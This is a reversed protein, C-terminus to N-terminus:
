HTQTDVFYHARFIHLASLCKSRTSKIQHNESVLNLQNRACIQMSVGIYVVCVTCNAAVLFDFENKLFVWKWNPWLSVYEGNMIIYM